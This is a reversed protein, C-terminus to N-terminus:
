RLAQACNSHVLELHAHELDAAGAGSEGASSTGSSSSDRSMIFSLVTEIQFLSVLYFSILNFNSELLYCIPCQSTM